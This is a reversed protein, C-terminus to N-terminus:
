DWGPPRGIDGFDRAFASGIRLTMAEEGGRGVIHLGGPLGGPTLGMPTTLACFGIYNAMRTFQSPATTQVIEVVVPAAIPLTPTVIAAMGDMASLFREQDEIRERLARLYNVTTETKGVMIRAKVDEDVPSTPDDYMERHHYYGEVAILTGVGFRMDDISRPFALPVTSAGLRELRALTDDYLELIDADCIERDADTLVGLVLGDVGRGFNRYLGNGGKLDADIRHPEVGAMTQYMVAADGASRALPGPTDLTHSLPQIGDLPLQGETVKLGVLGCFAAPIRVSGGTDTGVGCPAFRAAVSAGTGSSSGGPARHTGTDWPNWPTGRQTNTGWPGCAVEVTKTKGIMIGGAAILRHAIPATETSVRNAHTACGGTTVTGEVHVLDKLVFPVGHFPGIRHGSRIAHTAAEAAERAADAMTVEFAGIKAEHRDIRALLADTVDAPTTAGTQYAESLEIVGLEDLADM